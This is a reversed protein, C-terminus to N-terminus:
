GGETSKLQGFNLDLSRGGGGGGGGVGWTSKLQGFNLGKWGM